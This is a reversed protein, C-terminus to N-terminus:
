INIISDHLSYCDFKSKGGFIYKKMFKKRYKNTKAFVKNIKDNTFYKLINNIEKQNKAVIAVKKLDRLFIKSYTTVDEDYIFFIKKNLTLSKYLVIGSASDTIIIDNKLIQSHINKSYEIKIKKFNNNIYNIIGSEIKNIWPRYSIKFKQIKSLFTLIKKQTTYLNYNTMKRKISSVTVNGDSIYLIKNLFSHSNEKLYNNKKLLEFCGTPIILKKKKIFNPKFFNNKVGYTLLFDVPNFFFENKPVLATGLGGGHQLYVTKINNKKALFIFLNQLLTINSYTFVFNPQIKKIERQIKSYYNKIIKPAMILTFIIESKLFYLSNRMSTNVKLKDLWKDYIKEYVFKKKIFENKFKMKLYQSKVGTSNFVFSRSFINSEYSLIKKQNILLNKEVHELYLIKINKKELFFNKLNNLSMFLSLVFNKVTSKLILKLNINQENKVTIINIRKKKLFFEKNLCHIYNYNNQESPFVNEYDNTFFFIKKIKKKKISDQILSKYINYKSFFNGFLHYLYYSNLEITSYDSYLNLQKNIESELKKLLFFTKNILKFDNQVLLKFIKEYNYLNYKIKLNKLEESVAPSTTVVLNNSNSKISRLYYNLHDVSEIIILNM